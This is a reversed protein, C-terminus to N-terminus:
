QPELASHLKDTIAGQFLPSSHGHLTELTAAAMGPTSRAPCPSTWIWFSDVEQDQPASPANQRIFGPGAHFKARCSSDLAMEVDVSCKSVREEDM